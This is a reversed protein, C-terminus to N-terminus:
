WFHWVGRWVIWIGLLFNTVAHATMADGLRKKWCVLGQYTVACLIGALWENHAFGFILASLLFPKWAFQGLPVSAFDPRAIWRYLFSRYFVEEMPPVVLSSGIVRVNIFFWGLATGDGYQRFPNWPSTSITSAKSLGLKVWLEQQTPVIRDLGIWVVFVLVGALAAEWSVKWRMELVAGRVVWLMWAGVLTKALYLWYRGEEGFYGQCFTLALFVVFPAVRTIAPFNALLVTPVNM